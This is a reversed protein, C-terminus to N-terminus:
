MRTYTGIKKNEFTEYGYRKYLACRYKGNLIEYNYIKVFESLPIDEEIHERAIKLNKRKKLKM